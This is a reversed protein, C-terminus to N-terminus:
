ARCDLTQMIALIGVMALAVAYIGTEYPTLYRALVVSVAFQLILSCGQALAMPALSRKLSL